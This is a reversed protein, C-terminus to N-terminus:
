PPSEELGALNELVHSSGGIPWREQVDQLYRLVGGLWIYNVTPRKEM